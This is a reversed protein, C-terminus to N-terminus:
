RTSEGFKKFTMEDEVLGCAACQVKLEPGNYALHFPDLNGEEYQQVVQGSQPDMKVSQPVQQIINFRTRNTRCNPCRYPTTM